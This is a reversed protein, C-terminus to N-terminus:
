LMNCNNQCNDNTNFFYYYNTNYFYNNNINFFNIEVIQWWSLRVLQYGLATSDEFIKYGMFRQVNKVEPHNYNKVIGMM